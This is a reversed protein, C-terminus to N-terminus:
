DKFPSKVDRQHEAGSGDLLTQLEEKSMEFPDREYSPPEIARRPGPNGEVPELVWERKSRNVIEWAHGERDIFKRYAM